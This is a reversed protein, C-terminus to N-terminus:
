ENVAETSEAAPISKPVFVIRPEAGTWDLLWVPSGQNTLQFVSQAGLRRLMSPQCYCALARATSGDFLLAETSSSRLALVRSESLLALGTVDTAEAIHETQMNENIRSLVGSSAFVGAKSKPAFAFASAKQGIAAAGELSWLYLADELNGAISTGSDSLALVQAGAPVELDHLLTATTGELRYVRARNGGLVALTHESPSFLYGTAETAGELAVPSGDAVRILAIGTESKGIAYHAGVVAGDLSISRAEGLLSAGPVGLIPRVLSASADWEYGISPSNLSQASLGVSAFLAATLVRQAEIRSRM